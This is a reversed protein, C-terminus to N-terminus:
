NEKEIGILNRGPDEWHRELIVKPNRETQHLKVLAIQTVMSDSHDIGSRYKGPVPM